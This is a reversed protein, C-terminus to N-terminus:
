IFFKREMSERAPRCIALFILVGGVLILASFPFPSWRVKSVVGFTVFILYEILPMLAGLSIFMGGFTYLAGRKAYKLLTVTTTVIIGLAGILPFALSLFWGGSTVFNIYLLYLGIALFGCPVFIVPNPNKFWLPLVFLEYALIVAGIVYGSWTICGNLQLDCILSIFLPLLFICSIIVLAGIKSVHTVPQQNKPYLPDLKIHTIDPHYPVTGCLPCKDETDGLKVGCNICYMYIEKIAKLRPASEWTVCFRM